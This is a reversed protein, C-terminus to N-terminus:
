LLDELREAIKELIEAADTCVRDVDIGGWEFDDPAGMKARMEPTLEEVSYYPCKELDCGDFACGAPASICRLCRAAQKANVM